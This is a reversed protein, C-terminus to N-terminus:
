PTSVTHILDKGQNNESSATSAVGKAASTVPQAADQLQSAGDITTTNEAMQTVGPVKSEIGDLQQQLQDPNASQVTSLDQQLRSATGHDGSKEFFGFLLLYHWWPINSAKQNYEDVKSQVKQPLNSATLTPNKLTTRLDQIANSASDIAGNMNTVTTQPEHPLNQTLTYIDNVTNQLQAYRSADSGEDLFYQWDNSELATNALNAIQQCRSDDTGGAVGAIAQLKSRVDAFAAGWDYTTTTYQSGDSRTHTETNQYQWSPLGDNFYNLGEGAIQNVSNLTRIAPIDPISVPASAASVSSRVYADSSLSPAAGQRTIPKKIAKQTVVPSVKLAM